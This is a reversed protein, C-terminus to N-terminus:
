LPSLKAIDFRTGIGRKVWVFAHGDGMRLDTAKLATQEQHAKDKIAQRQDREYKIITAASEQREYPMAENAKWYWSVDVLDHQGTPTSHASPLLCEGLTTGYSAGSYPFEAEVYEQNPYVGEFTSPAIKTMGALKVYYDCTTDDDTEFIIKTSMNKLIVDANERSGVARALSAFNQSACILFLGTSRGINWFGSDATVDDAGKGVTALLQFEDAILCCWNNKAAEPDDVQRRNAKNMLRSKMWISALHGSVGGRGAAGLANMLIGGNLAHEVDICQEEPYTGRFFREAVGWDDRFTDGLIASVTGSLNQLTEPPQNLYMSLLMPCSEKGYDRLQQERASIGKEKADALEPIAGVFNKLTPIDTTLCFIGYLSYPRAGYKAMFAKLLNADTEIAQTLCAVHFLVHLPLKEWFAAQKDGGNTMQAQVKQMTEKFETPTMGKLLDVGFEGEKVGVIRVDDKRKESIEILEYGLVGKGDTVYAGIKRGESWEGDIVVRKYMPKIFLRTKGIGTPGEAWMHRRIQDSDICIPTGALPAGPVNRQHMLGTALGIEFISEDKLRTVADMVFSSYKKYAQRADLLESKSYVHYDITPLRRRWSLSNWLRNMGAVFGNWWFVPFLLALPWGYTIALSGCTWLTASVVQLTWLMLASYAGSELAWGPFAPLISLTHEIYPFALLSVGAALLVTLKLAKRGALNAVRIVSQESIDGFCIEAPDGGNPLRGFWWPSVKLDDPTDIWMAPFHEKPFRAEALKVLSGSREPHRSAAFLLDTSKVLARSIRKLM